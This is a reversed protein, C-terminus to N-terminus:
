QAFAAFKVAGLRQTLDRQQFDAWGGCSLLFLRKIRFYESHRQRAAQRDRNRNQEDASLTLIVFM